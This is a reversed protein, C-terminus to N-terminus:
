SSPRKAFTNLTVGAIVLFIGLIAMGSLEEGFYFYGIALAFIAGVYKIPTVVSADEKHIAFAMAVQALVSLVGVSLGILLTNTDIPVWNVSSVGGMIPTALLHFYMVILVPHDTDKCKMTAFYAVAALFAATVGIVLFKLPVDSNDPGKVLIVGVFAIALFLWQIPRVKQGLWIMALIVTFVPSLYQIVTASALPINQITYFFLTLAIMGFVGRILLWKKNKGFFPFGKYLVFSACMLLSISSRLFVIQTTPLDSILKVLVNAATFLFVSMLMLFPGSGKM